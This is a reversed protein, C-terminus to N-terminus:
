ILFCRCGSRLCLTLSILFVTTGLAQSSMMVAICMARLKVARLFFSSPHHLQGQTTLPYKDVSVFKYNLSFNVVLEEEKKKKPWVWWTCLYGPWPAFRHWLLSGLWQLSLALDKVRQVEPFGWISIYLITLLSSTPLLFSLPSINQLLQERQFSLYHPCGM